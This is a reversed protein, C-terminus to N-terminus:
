LKRKPIQFNKILYELFSMAGNHKEAWEKWVDEWSSPSMLNTYIFAADFYVPTETETDIGDRVIEFDVEDGEEYKNKDNHTSIPILFIKETFGEPSKIQDKYKMWLSGSLNTVIGKM